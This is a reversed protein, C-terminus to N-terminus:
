AFAFDLLVFNSRVRFLTLSVNASASPPSTRAALDCLVHVPWVTPTRDRGKRCAGRAATRCTQALNVQLKRQWRLLGLSEWCAIKQHPSMTQKGVCTRGAARVWGSKSLLLHLGCNGQKECPSGQSDASMPMHYLHVQKSALHVGFDALSVQKLSYPEHFHLIYLPKNYHHSGHRGPGQACLKVVEFAGLCAKCRQKLTHYFTPSCLSKALDHNLRDLPQGLMAGGGECALTANKSKQRCLSSAQVMRPVRCCQRTQRPSLLWTLLAAGALFCAAPHDQKLEELLSASHDAILANVKSCRASFRKMGQPGQLVEDQIEWPRHNNRASLRAKEFVFSGVARIDVRGYHSSYM